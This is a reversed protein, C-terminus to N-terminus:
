MWNWAEPREVEATVYNRSINSNFTLTKQAASRIYGTVGNSGPKDPVTYYRGSAEGPYVPGMKTRHGRGGDGGNVKPICM